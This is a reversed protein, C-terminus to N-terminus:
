DGSSPGPLAFLEGVAMDLSVHDVAVFAGFRKTVSQISVIANGPASM